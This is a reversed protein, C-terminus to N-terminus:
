SGAQEKVHDMDLNRTQEILDDLRAATYAGTVRGVIVGDRVFMTTPISRIEFRASLQPNDDVDVKLHTIDTHRAASQAFIPDIARCPACWAGWFDVVAIGDSPLDTDFSEQDSNIITSM